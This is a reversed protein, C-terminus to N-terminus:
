RGLGGEPNGLRPKVSQFQENKGEAQRTGQADCDMHCISGIRGEPHHDFASASQAAVQLGQELVLDEAWLAAQEDSSVGAIGGFGFSGSLGEHFVQVFRSL